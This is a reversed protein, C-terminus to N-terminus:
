ELGSGGCNERLERRGKRPLDLDLEKTTSSEYSKGKYDVNKNILM